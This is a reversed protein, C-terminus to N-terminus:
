QLRSQMVLGLSKKPWKQKKTCILQLKGHSRQAKYKLKYFVNRRIQEAAKDKTKSFYSCFQLVRAAFVRAAFAHKASKMKLFVFAKNPFYAALFFSHKQM